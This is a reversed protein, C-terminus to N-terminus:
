SENYLKLINNRMQQGADSLAFSITDAIAEPSVWKTFDADPMFKRNKESDITSPVIVTTDIGIGKGYANVLKALQFVLQKSLTYAVENKGEEPELVAKSGIFIFRGGGRQEFVPLLERVLYFTTEFNLAFMKSITDRDTSLLDGSSFGGALMVAGVINWKEKAEQVYARVTEEDTLNLITAEVEKSQLADVSKQSRVPALIHYGAAALRQWVTDGLSGSAGTILISDKM